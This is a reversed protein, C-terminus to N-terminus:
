IDMMLLLLEQEKTLSMPFTGLLSEITHTNIDLDIIAKFLDHSVLITKPYQLDYKNPTEPENVPINIKDSSLIVVNKFNDSGTIEPKNNDIDDDEIIFDFDDLFSDNRNKNNKQYRSHSPDCDDFGFYVFEIHTIVGNNVIIKQINIEPLTDPYPDHRFLVEILKNNKYEYFYNYKFYNGGGEPVIQKSSIMRSENYYLLHIVNMGQQHFATYDVYAYDEEIDYYVSLQQKVNGVWREFLNLKLDPNADIFGKYEYGLDNLISFPQNFAPSVDPITDSQTIAQLFDLIDENM